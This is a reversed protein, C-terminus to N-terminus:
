RVLKLLRYAEHFYYEDNKFITSPFPNGELVYYDRETIMIDWGIIFTDKLIMRHLQRLRHIADRLQPISNAEYLEIKKLMSGQKQNTALVNGDNYLYYILFVKPIESEKNHITIVRYHGNENVSNIKQQVIFEGDPLMKNMEHFYSKVFTGHTGFKNKVIMESQKMEYFDSISEVIEKDKIYAYIEPTKVQNMQFLNYWYLKDYMLMVSDISIKNKLFFLSSEFMPNILPYTFLMDLQNIIGENYNMYRHTVILIMSTEFIFLLLIFFIMNPYKVYTSLLKQFFRNSSFNNPLNQNCTKHSFCSKLIFRNSLYFYTTYLTKIFLYFLLLNM